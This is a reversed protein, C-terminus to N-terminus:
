DESDSDIEPATSNSCSIGKCEGCVSTCELGQKRCTCRSTNCGTKCNCRIMEILYTPAPDEDTSIPLLQGDKEKWGWDTAHLGLSNGKWENVQFFVRLSHYKAAASTPPLTQAEVTKSCTTVKEKFRQYRLTNLNDKESGGYLCVLASEGAKIIDEQSIDVDGSFIDALKCFHANKMVKKLSVAKGIGFLRSTTDCGLIAHVFLITRRVTDGLETNMKKIDWMRYKNSNSKPEPRFYLDKSVSEAHHCLLVLLDTDDGVLVTDVLQASDVATRVILTDADGKAQFTSCGAMELKGCLFNILRQKNVKNSLFDDKKLSLVTQGTFHVNPGSRGGTRRIHTADKTSPGDTYGDFVITSKGYRRVVYDVYLQCIHDITERRLWPVRQILAGGDIVFHVETSPVTDPQVKKVLEWLADALVPKNAARPLVPSEFLAPPYSCLEYEFASSSDDEKNAIISLRQFLLQPEVQVTEDNITVSTKSGLTVVQNKRRFSYEHANKGVMSQLIGQGVQKAKDVNVVEDATVGNVLSRLSKDPGFPYWRKLAELVLFTDKMDRKVRSKSIDKHQESTEYIVGSFSQMAFNVESCAPMSLLWVLRQPENIGRGRTLGGRSKISRILVQEIILDTSLGAWYRDSRRIVHHGKQFNSYVDPHTDGLSLMTQLYIYASKTYLNHGSAALYPLMEKMAHLHLAWNGTREAKIFQCLVQIMHMYQLWLQATRNDCLAEKEKSTEATIRGLAESDSAGVINDGGLLRDLLNVAEDLDQNLMHRDEDLHTEETEWLMVEESPIEQICAEGEGVKDVPLPLNYANAVLITQLAAYILLHGRVARSIAKGTLMHKVSNAAYVTELVESLGSGAMLHGISGLFSMETHLGGLRLVVSKICSGVPESQQIVMAKWWLPQDFTVVPTVGYSKAQKCVYHLTSYICSMDSSNMDIMPLFLVSSKGPHEHHHVTQMMGSWSPRSPRVFFSMDWLLDIHATPDTIEMATLEKYTLPPKSTHHSVVYRISIKGVKLIDEESVSTRQVPKDVVMSPTFAAVIGMGHFTGHGDLTRVDHDVNDGMFQMVQDPNLVDVEAVQAVTACREFKQVEAYSCGFGHRYLSDVLFRSAFHHHMQGSLGFQLPALLVRPRTAQMIAQGVSALKRDIDKGTFV